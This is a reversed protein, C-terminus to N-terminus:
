LCYEIACIKGDYDLFSLGDLNMSQPDTEIKDFLEDKSDIGFSDLTEETLDNDEVNEWWDKLDFVTVSENKLRKLAERETNHDAMLIALERSRTERIKEFSRSENRDYKKEFM